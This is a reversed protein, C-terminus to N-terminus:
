PVYRLELRTQARLEHDPGATFQKEGVSAFSENRGTPAHKLLEVLGLTRRGAFIACGAAVEQDGGRDHEALQMHRRDHEREKGGIRLDVHADHKEIVDYIENFVMDVHGNADAM